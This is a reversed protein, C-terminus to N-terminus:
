VDSFHQGISLKSGTVPLSAHMRSHGARSHPTDNEEAFKVKLQENEKNGEDVEKRSKDLARAAKESRKDAGSRGFRACCCFSLDECHLSLFCFLTRCWCTDTSLSFQCEDLLLDGQSRNTRQSSSVTVPIM